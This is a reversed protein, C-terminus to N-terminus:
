EDQEAGPEDPLVESALDAEIDEIRPLNDALPQPLNRLLDFEAIGIPKEIGNVAYQAELRNQKRCLLLGISPKDDPAKIQADM